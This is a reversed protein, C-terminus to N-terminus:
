GRLKYGPIILSSIRKTDKAMGAFRGTAASRTVFSDLGARKVGAVNKSAVIEKKIPKQSFKSM